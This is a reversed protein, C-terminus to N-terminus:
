SLLDCLVGLHSIDQPIHLFRVGANKALQGDTVHSDGVVISSSAEYIQLMEVSPKGFSKAPARGSATELLSALSGTDPIRFAEDPYLADVNGLWYPTQAALSCLLALEQATFDPRFLVLIADFPSSVSAGEPAAWPSTGICLSPADETKVHQLLTWQVSPVAKVLFAFAEDTGWVMMRFPQPRKSVQDECFSAVSTLSSRIEQDTFFLGAQALRQQISQPSHRNNNTLVSCSRGSRRVHALAEVAFLCPKSNLLLTGDLDFFVTKINQLDPLTGAIKATTSIGATYPLLEIRATLKDEDYRIQRKYSELEWDTGHFIVTVGYKRCIKAHDDGIEVSVQRAGQPGLFQLLFARINAARTEASQKPIRKYGSVFDDTHVAVVLQHCRQLARYILAKHGWHLLDFVGVAYGVDLIDKPGKSVMLAVKYVYPGFIVIHVTAARCKPHPPAGEEKFM